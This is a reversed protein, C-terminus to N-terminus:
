AASAAPLSTALGPPEGPMRLRIARDRILRYLMKLVVFRPFISLQLIQVVPRAGDVLRLVDELAEPDLMTTEKSVPAEGAVPVLRLDRIAAKIRPLDDAWRAAELAISNVDCDAAFSAFPGDEIRETPSAKQFVFTGRSWTFLDCIEEMMWDQVLHAIASRSPIGGRVTFAESPETFRGLRRLLRELRHCRQSGRVLRIGSPCVRLVRRDTGAEVTLLGTSRDLVLAQILNAISLVSLDGRIAAM